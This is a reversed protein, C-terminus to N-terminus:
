PTQMFFQWILMEDKQKIITRKVIDNSRKITKPHVGKPCPPSAAFHRIYVPHLYSSSHWKNDHINAPFMGECTRPPGCRRVFAIGTSILVFHVRLSLVRERACRTTNRLIEVSIKPVEWRLIERPIGSPRIFTSNIRSSRLISASHFTHLTNM